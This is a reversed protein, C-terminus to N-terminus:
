DSVLALKGTNAHIAIRSINQIRFTALDAVLYWRPQKESWRYLKSGVGTWLQGLADVAFDQSGDPLHTLSSLQQGDWRQVHTGSEDRTSLLVYTPPLGADTPTAIARDAHEAILQASDAHQPWYELRAPEAVTFVVSGERFWSHYGVASNDNQRTFQGNDPNFSVLWQAGDAQVQVMSLTNLAPNWHSLASFESLPTDAVPTISYDLRDLQARMINTYGDADGRTFFLQRGDHSFSPQNDYGAHRTLRIPASTQDIGVEDGSLTLDLLWIDTAPLEFQAQAQGTLGLLICALPAIWCTHQTVRPRQSMSPSVENIPKQQPQKSIWAMSETNTGLAIKDFVM